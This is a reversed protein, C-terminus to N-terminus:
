LICPPDGGPVCGGGPDTMAMAPTPAAISKVAPLMFGIAAAAAVKVATRRAVPTTTLLNLQELQGVAMEVVNREFGLEDAIAETSTKGDLKGWVLASTPNLRHAKKRARDYVVIEDGVEHVLLNDVRAEPKM